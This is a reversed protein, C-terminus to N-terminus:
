CCHAPSPTDRSRDREGRLELIEIMAGDGARHTAFPTRTVSGDANRGASSAANFARTGVTISTRVDISTDNASIVDGRAAATRGRALYGLGESGPGGQPRRGDLFNCPEDYRRTSLGMPM